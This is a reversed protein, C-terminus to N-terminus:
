DAGWVILRTGTPLTTGSYQNYLRISKIPDSTNDWKYAFEMRNPANGSGSGGYDAYHALALKEKTPDNVIFMNLYKSTNTDHSWNIEDDDANAFDSAGGNVSGRRAYNNNTSGDDGNFYLYGHHNSSQPIHTQVWLYKKSNITSSKNNYLKVNKVVYSTHVSQSWTSSQLHTCDAGRASGSAITLTKPSGSAHTTRASDTYVNLTGLTASNRVLRCYYQTTPTLTITASYDNDTGDRAILRMNYNNGSGSDSYVDIGYGDQSGGGFATTGATYMIPVIDPDGSPANATIKFDFDTIHQTNSLKEPLATYVRDSGTSGSGGDDGANTATITNDTKVIETGVQYFYNGSGIIYWLDETSPSIDSWSGGNKQRFTENAVNSNNITKFNLQNGSSGGEFKLAVSDNVAITTAPFNFIIYEHSGSSPFKSADYTTPSTAKPNSDDSDAYIYAYLTGTPSGQDKRCQVVLQTIETGILSNGSDFRQSLITRQGNNLTRSENPSGSNQKAVSGTATLDFDAEVATSFDGSDLINPMETSFSINNTDGDNGGSGSDNMNSAFKFWAYLNTTSPSTPVTGSNYLDSIDSASLERKYILFQQLKGDVYRQNDTRKGMLPSHNPDNSSMSRGQTITNTLSGDKYFRVKSTSATNGGDYAFTYMHWNGTDSFANSTNTSFPYGASATGDYIGLGIATGDHTLSFGRNSGSNDNMTSFFRSNQSSNDDNFWFSVTWASGDSLFKWDSASGGISSYSSSGNFEAINSGDSSSLEVSKLQEWFQTGAEADPDYGLVICESGSAFSGTEKNHSEVKGISETSNAWKVAMEEREPANTAGSGSQHVRYLTGLKEMSTDNIFTSVTFDSGDIDTDSRISSIGNNDHQTTSGNVSRAGTYNDDSDENFRIGSRVAGTNFNHALIQIYPKSALDGAVSSIGDYFKFETLTGTVNSGQQYNASIFYRLTGGGENSVANTKSGYLTTYADSYQNVTFNSGDRIIEFYHKGTFDSVNSGGSQLRTQVTSQDLRSDNCMNLYTRTGTTGNTTQNGSGIFSQATANAQVSADSSVGNWWIINDGSATGSMEIAFRLVWKSTSISGSVLSNLDIAVNDNSYNNLFDIEHNTGDLTFGSGANDTTWGTSMDGTYTTDADAGTVLVRDGDATLKKRGLEVWHFPSAGQTATSGFGLLGGSFPLTM